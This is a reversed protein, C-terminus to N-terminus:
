DKTKGLAPRDTLLRMVETRRLPELFRVNNLGWEFRCAPLMNCWSCPSEAGLRYPRIAVTGSLVEDALEGLRVRVTDLLAHFAGADAIDSQDMRGPTKDKKLYVAYHPSMGTTEDDGMVGLADLEAANILGRPRDIGRRVSRRANIMSPHDIRDYRPALSQYFTGIPRIKRGAIADGHEAVVLLYASLQLALGYFVRSLELRKHPTDKYDVVIGLLADATDVVDLRDIVGRLLVRRGKPTSIELAPMDADNGMGFSVESGRPRANGCASSIRQALLVGALRGAARRLMYANRPSEHENFDPLRERICSCSERLRNLVDEESLESFSSNRSVMTRTFAELVAHHVTGVEVGEIRAQERKKLRLAHEALYKFPCAAFTELHSVSTQLTEPYLRRMTASSVLEVAPGDLSALSARLANDGSLEGKIAFYLENWRRRVATRDLDPPPRTSLESAIRRGAEPLTQIDWMMRARTPDEVVTLELGPLASPIQQVYPSPRMSKGAEARSYTVVLEESARTLAVYALMAEDRVRRRSSAGIRAEAAELADRDDDNLIANETMEAPFVGENWGLVIAARLHPHRSREISGVHLQDVTQPALGLTISSLGAELIEAVESLGLEQSGLASELDDLLEVLATWIQRHEEARDLQGREDAEESWRRVQAAVSARDLLGRLANTWQRGTRESSGAAFNMWEQLQLTVLRRAENVRDIRDREDPSNRSQEDLATPRRPAWDGDTWARWGDIGRAILFNETEDALNLNLPLLTTKLLQRATELKMSGAAAALSGRVFEVLPHHGISRRTDLFYPINSADLAARILDQYPELDRVILAVERLRYKPTTCRTWECVRSVAYDVEMRRSSLEVLSIGKPSESETNRGNEEKGRAYDLFWHRELQALSPQTAFRGVSTATLVLPEVEQIGAERFQKRLQQLTRSTRGFLRDGTTDAHNATATPDLLVAMHVHSCLRALETLTTAEQGSLSAFGDVWLEAGLLWDCRSFRARALELLQSSDLRDSGLYDLYSAYIMRLDNLKLFRATDDHHTTRPTSVSVGCILTLDDPSLNEQILETITKALQECFGGLRETRRYYKLRPSLRSVIHRLVMVRASESLVTETLANGSELVRAALRQFSLVEARHSALIMEGDHNADPLLIAREMQHSAQEPVLFILRPGNLPDVRLRDRIAALCHYTKGSGARGIIFQVAM